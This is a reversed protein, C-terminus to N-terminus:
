CKSRTEDVNAQYEVRAFANINWTAPALRSANRNHRQAEHRARSETSCAFLFNASHKVARASGDLITRGILIYPTITRISITFFNASKKSHQKLRPAIILNSNRTLTWM